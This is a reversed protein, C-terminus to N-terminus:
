NKGEKQIFNAPKFAVLLNIQLIYNSNMINSNSIRIILALRYVVARQKDNIKVNKSTQMVYNFISKLLAVKAQMLHISM